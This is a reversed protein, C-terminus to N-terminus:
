VPSTMLHLVQLLNSLLHLKTSKAHDLLGDELSKFTESVRLGIASLQYHWSRYRAEKFPKNLIKAVLLPNPCAPTVPFLKTIKLKKTLSSFSALPSCKKRRINGVSYRPLPDFVKFLSLAM